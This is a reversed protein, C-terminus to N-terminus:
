IVHLCATNVFVVFKSYEDQSIKVDWSINHGLNNRLWYTVKIADDITETFDNM